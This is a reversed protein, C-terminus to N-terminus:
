PMLLCVPAQVWVTGFVVKMMLSRMFEETWGTKRRNAGANRHTDPTARNRAPHVDTGKGGAVGMGGGVVGAALGTGSAGTTAVGGTM